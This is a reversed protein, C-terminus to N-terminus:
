QDPPAPRKDDWYDGEADLEGEGDLEEDMDYFLAFLYTKMM